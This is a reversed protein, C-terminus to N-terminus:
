MKSSELKAVELPYLVPTMKRDRIKEFAPTGMPLLSALGAAGMAGFCLTFALINSTANGEDRVTSM